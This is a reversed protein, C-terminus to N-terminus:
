KKNKMNNFLFGLKLAFYSSKFTSNDNEETFLNSLGLNYNVSLMLGNPFTYGTLFNAGLDLSKFNDEDTNGFKVDTAYSDAGDKYKYKGSVHFAVSPGAGIFFNGNNGSTNYLLNLPFEICNIRLSSTETIGFFIDREATGKQTFNLAPQFSLHKNLPVNVLLGATFGGKSDGSTSEGDVKAHYNAFLLGGTFGFKTSQAKIAAVSSISCVLLFVIKKM